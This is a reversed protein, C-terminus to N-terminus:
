LYALNEAMFIFGIKLRSPFYERMEKLNIMRKSKINKM